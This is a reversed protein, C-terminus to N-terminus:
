PRGHAAVSWLRSHKARPVRRRDDRNAYGRQRLCVLAPFTRQEAGTQCDRVTIQLRWMGELRGAQSELNGEQASLGSTLFLMVALAFVSVLDVGYVARSNRM